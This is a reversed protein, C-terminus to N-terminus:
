LNSEKKYLKASNVPKLWDKEDWGVNIRKAITARGIGSMESWEILSKEVGNISILRNNGKNRCQEEYTAWRCNSPEYNGDNDIRDLTLKKNYGNAMAWKYFSMFDEKWEECVKIGRGGYNHFQIETPKSCRMKMNIYIRYIRSRSLSHTTAVKRMNDKMLCGCSQVSGSNLNGTRALTNNGCECQCLWVKHHKEIHSLQIVTLRGYKKGALNYERKNMFAGESVLQSTPPAIM